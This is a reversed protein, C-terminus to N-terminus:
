PYVGVGCVDTGIRRVVSVKPEVEGSVPNTWKPIPMM